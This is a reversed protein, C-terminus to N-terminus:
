SKTICEALIHDRVSFPWQAFRVHFPADLLVHAIGRVPRVGPKSHTYQIGLLLKLIYFGPTSDLSSYPVLSLMDM